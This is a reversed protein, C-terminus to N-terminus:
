FCPYWAGDNSRRSHQQYWFRVEEVQLKHSRLLIAQVNLNDLEESDNNHIEYSDADFRSLGKHSIKNYTKIHYKGLRYNGIDGYAKWNAHDSGSINPISNFIATSMFIKGRTNTTFASTLKPLM